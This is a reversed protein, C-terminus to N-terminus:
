LRTDLLKQVILSQASLNKFEQTQQETIIKHFTELEYTMRDKQNESISKESGNNQKYIFSELINAPSASYIYGLDGQVCINCPSSCDKAAILTCVFNEYQLIMIGSTDIDREINPYYKAEKPEGFLAVVFHLNYVGLDMLAGGSLKPDFVAPTEGAKFREYRRSYQSYNISVIKIKGLSPIIEKIKAFNPMFLPAVAEFVFVGMKKATEILEQAESFNSTFPKEVIAHKHALIVKKAAAYHLSNPLAVYIVQIDMDALFDNEDFYVKKIGESKALESVKEKSQIRGLIAEFEYKGSEKAARTFEPVILGSGWIGIKLKEM